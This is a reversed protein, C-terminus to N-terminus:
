EDLRRDAVLSRDSTATFTYSSVVSVEAGGETWNVFAYGTNATADLTVDAGHDYDGAGDDTGVGGPGPTADM